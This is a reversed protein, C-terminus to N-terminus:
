GRSTAEQRSEAELREVLQQRWARQGPWTEPLDVRERAERLRRAFQRCGASCYQRRQGPKPQGLPAACTACHDDSDTM